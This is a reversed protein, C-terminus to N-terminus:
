QNIRLQKDYYINHQHANHVYFHVKRYEKRKKQTVKKEKATNTQLMYLEQPFTAPITSEIEFQCSM